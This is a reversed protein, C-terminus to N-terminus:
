VLKTDKKFWNSLFLFNVVTIILICVFQSAIANILFIETLAFLLFMNLVYMASSLALYVPITKKFSEQHKFVFKKQAWIAIPLAIVFVISLSLLPSLGKFILFSFISFTFLARSFGIFSYKSFGALKELVTANLHRFNIM